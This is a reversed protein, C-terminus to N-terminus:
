LHKITTESKKTQRECPDLSTPFAILGRITKIFISFYGTQIEYKSPDKPIAKPNTIYPSFTM